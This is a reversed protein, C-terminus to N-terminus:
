YFRWSFFHCRFYCGYNYEKLIDKMNKLDEYLDLVITDSNGSANEDWIKKMNKVVPLLWLLVSKFNILEFTLPKWEAGKAIFGTINGNEDTTSFDKRLQKFREILNHIKDMLSDTYHFM